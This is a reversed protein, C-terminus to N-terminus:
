SRKAVLRVGDQKNPDASTLVVLRNVNSGVAASRTVDVVATILLSQNPTIVPTQYTGADIAATRETQGVFYRVTFGAAAPGFARVKFSDSRHSDNQVSIVFTLSDGGPASAIVTQNAGTTDYVNDGQFSSASSLKIRGDPRFVPVGIAASFASTSGTVNTATATLHPGYVTGPFSWNGSGDATASGHYTTGENSADSYVEVTCGACSTGHVPSTGTIVPPNVGEQATNDRQIGAGGNDHISNRTITDRDSYSAAHVGALGNYAVINNNIVVYQASDSALGLRIGDGSNGLAGGGAKTGVRNGAITLAQNGTQGIVIGAGSNGSVLNGQAATAGGFTFSGSNQVIVGTGNAVAITGTVDTGIYNGQVVCAGYCGNIFMGTNTNGSVVNREGATPGGITWAGSSILIGQQNPLAATGAADLGFFNGKITGGGAGYIGAGSNGSIVNCDGACGNPAGTNTGGITAGSPAYIADSSNPGIVNGAIVTDGPNTVIGQTFNQIILNRITSGTASGNITLGPSAKSGADTGKITVKGSGGDITLPGTIADLPTAGISITSGALIPNFTITDTGTSGTADCHGTLNNLNAATIADRLTCNGIPNHIDQNSNVELVIGQGAFARQTAIPMLSAAMAAALVVAKLARASARTM